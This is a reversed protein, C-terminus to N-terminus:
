SVVEAPLHIFCTTSCTKVLEFRGCDQRQYPLYDASGLENKATVPPVAPSVRAPQNPPSSDMFRLGSVEVFSKPDTSRKLEEIEPKYDFTELQSPGAAM